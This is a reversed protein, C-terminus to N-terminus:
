NEALTWAQPIFYEVNKYDPGFLISKAFTYSDIGREPNPHQSNYSVIEENLLYVGYNEYANFASPTRRIDYSVYCNKEDELYSTFNLNPFTTSLEESHPTIINYESISWYNIYDICAKIYGKHDQISDFEALFFNTIKGYPTFVDTHINTLNGVENWEFVEVQWNTFWTRDYEYFHGPPLTFNGVFTKKGNLNNYIYILLPKDGWTNVRIGKDRLNYETSVTTLKM